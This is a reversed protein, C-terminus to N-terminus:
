QFDASLLLILLLLGAAGSGVIAPVSGLRFGVFGAVAAGDGDRPLVELRGFGGFWQRYDLGADASLGVGWEEIGTSHTMPGAAFDATLRGDLWRRYRLRVGLRPRYEGTGILFTAGLASREGRNWLAGLEWTAEWQADTSEIPNTGAFRYLVAAEVIGGVRCEPLPRAPFCFGDPEAGGSGGTQGAAPTPGPFLLATALLLAGARVRGPYRASSNSTTTLSPIPLATTSGTELRQAPERRGGEGGGPSPTVIGRWSAGQAEGHRTEEDYERNLRQHRQLIAGAIRNAEASVMGCAPGRVRRLARQIEGAARYAIDRHGNEHTRLAGIYRDWEAILASDARERDRWRPLTVTSELYVTSAIIECSGAGSQYRFEWRVRWRHYGRWGGDIARRAGENLSRTIESHTLGRVDYPWEMAQVQVGPPLPPPASAGPTTVCGTFPLLAAALVPAVRM